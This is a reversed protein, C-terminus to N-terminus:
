NLLQNTVFSLLAVFDRQFLISPIVFITVFLILSLTWIETWLYKVLSHCKLFEKGRLFVLLIIAVLELILFIHFRKSLLLTNIYPTIKPHIITFTIKKWLSKSKKSTTNQLEKKLLSLNKALNDLSSSEKKQAPTAQPPTANKQVLPPPSKKNVNEIFSKHLELGNGWPHWTKSPLHEPQALVWPSLLLLFVFHIKKM